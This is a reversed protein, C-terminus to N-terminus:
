PTFEEDRPGSVDDPDEIFGLEHPAVVTEEGEDPQIVLAGDPRVDAAVGIVSPASPGLPLLRARIRRGLVDCRDRYTELVDDSDAGSLRRELAEVLEGLLATRPPETGPVVVNVILQPQEGLGHRVSLAAAVEGNRLVRDPWGLSLDDGDLTEALALSGALYAWGRDEGEVILSFGLGHGRELMHGWSLGSRGRPGVQHGALVLAGAPAAEKTWAVAQAETSTAEGFTRLPRDGVIPSVAEQTLDEPTPPLEESDHKTPGDDPQEMPSQGSSM